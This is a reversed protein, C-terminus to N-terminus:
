PADPNGPHVGVAGFVRVEARDAAAMARDERLEALSDELAEVMPSKDALCDCLDAVYARVKQMAVYRESAKKMDGEIGEIKQLGSTM